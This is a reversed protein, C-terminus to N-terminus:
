SGSKFGVRGGQQPAQALSVKGRPKLRETHLPSYRYIQAGPTENMPIKWGKPLSLRKKPCFGWQNGRRGGLGRIRSPCLNPLLDASMRNQYRQNKKNKEDSPTM